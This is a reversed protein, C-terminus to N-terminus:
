GCTWAGPSVSGSSASGRRAHASPALTVPADDCGNPVTPPHSAADGGRGVSAQLQRPDAIRQVQPRDIRAGSSRQRVPLHHQERAVEEATREGGLPQRRARGDRQGRREAGRRHGRQPQRELGERVHTRSSGDTLDPRRPGTRRQPPEDCESVERPGDDTGSADSRDDGGVPGHVGRAPLRDEVLAGGLVEITEGLLSWRRGAHGVDAREEVRTTSASM